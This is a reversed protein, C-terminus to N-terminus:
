VAGLPVSVMPDPAELPVIAISVSASSTSSGPSVSTTSSSPALAPLPTVTVSSTVCAVVVITSPAPPGDELPTVTDTAGAVTVSPSSAPKATSSDPLTAAGTVTFQLAADPGSSM